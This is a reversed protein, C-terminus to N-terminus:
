YLNRSYDKAYKIIGEKLTMIPKYGFDKKAKDINLTQSYALTIATYNTLPPEGKLNFTKYIKELSNSLMYIGKKSLKLYKPKMGIEQMLQELIQKFEIPEGNSINYTKGKTNESELCLRLAYAVNEVCTIDVINEGNNVLPVGIKSNVRLIRPILSTDGVGFLGRPRVIAANLGNKIAENVIKESLIKSKIYYNLENNENFDDELINYRDRAEAYVSPSSVYVLKQNKQKLCADVVNKTGIVNANYFDEWKGWVTSLAAAHIVADVNSITNCINDKDNLDCKIFKVNGCELKKGIAENRGLAFVYYDHSKLEDVMYKGLFGTAGTVLIKKM